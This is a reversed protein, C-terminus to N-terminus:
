LPHCFSLSSGKTLGVGDEFRTQKALPARTIDVKANILVARSLWDGYLSNVQSLDVVLNGLVQQATFYGSQTIEPSDLPRFMRVDYLQQVYYYFFM